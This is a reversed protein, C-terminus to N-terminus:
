SKNVLVLRFNDSKNINKYFEILENYTEKPYRGKWMKIRRTYVVRGETFVMAAEYEGFRSAFKMQPPIFEPHFAEPFTVIVTDADLFNSYIVVDSKRDDVKDPIHTMRNMLNPMLFLRKGSASAFRNLTFDAKVTVSPVKKRDATFSFGTVSFNPIETNDQLWKKQDETSGTAREYLGDNDVQEGHYSTGVKASANGQADVTVQATRFQTNQEIPLSPTKIIRGGQDTLMIAHRSGTFRGLFGFPSKQNTCEMWLTDSGNPVAVIIHNTQHSPFDLILDPEDEGARIKTYYGKIGAEKLLAVMYNSLAKCDGYSTADVVSAPFPQLGGIGEQISIYRTKNQLFEYLVRAKEETTKMSRTLEGVKSKVGEPLEDRGVMLKSNWAGYSEWTSMDGEFGDYEFQRPAAMIMSVRERDYPAHPEDKLPVIDSFEWTLREKGDKLTEKKPSADINQLKYRPVLEKPYVLQYSVRQASIREVGLVCGPMSYLYRYDIEYEFEVTYPYETHTLTAIKVRQDSYLTSGDVASEDKIDQSKLRKVEKGMADYLTAKFSVIKELKDYYLFQTAKRKGAASLITIAEITRLNARGKSLITFVVEEKRVVADADKRLAEPIESVPYKEDGGLAVFAISLPLFAVLLGKMM